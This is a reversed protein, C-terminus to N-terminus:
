EKIIFCPQPLGGDWGDAVTFAVVEGNPVRDEEIYSILDVAYGRRIFNGNGNEDSGKFGKALIDKEYRIVAKYPALRLADILKLM